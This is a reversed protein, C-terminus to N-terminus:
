YEGVVFFVREYFHFMAELNVLVIGLNVKRCRYTRIDVFHWATSCYVIGCRSWVIGYRGYQNHRRGSYCITYRTSWLGDYGSLQHHNANNGFQFRYRFRHGIGSGNSWYIPVATQAGDFLIYSFNYRVRSHIFWAYRDHFVTWTTRDNRCIFQNRSNEICGFLIRWGTVDQKFSLIWSQRMCIKATSTYLSIRYRYINSVLDGVFNHDDHSRQSCYFIWTATQRERANQWNNRWVCRQVYCHRACQHRNHIRQNDEM